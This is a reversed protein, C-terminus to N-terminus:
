RQAELHGLLERLKEYGRHARVKVATETPGGTEAIEACSLAEFRHLVIPVRQQEPLQALADRVAKSQFPDVRGLPDDVEGEVHEIPEEPRKRRHQDRAANTAIAYVWPRFLAGPRFRERSRLVSL